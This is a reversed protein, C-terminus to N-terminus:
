RPKWPNRRRVLRFALKIAKIMSKSSALGRGAIDFATGHDPSTRVFPLGLTLNVGTEFSLMKLPALGQDHYMVVVAGFRNKLAQHFIVDGPIIGDIKLGRKRLRGIVPAIIKKEEGGLLGNDGAHPNLACVGITKRPLGLWKVALGAMEIAETLAARTLFKPILKVPVHRTALVVRLPGGMLMMAVNKVGALHALYETHGPFKCGAAQISKKCIPSTVLGDFAGALCGTVAARIWLLSAAGECKGTHGPRWRPDASSGHDCLGCRAACLNDPMKAGPDWVSVQNEDAEGINKCERPQPLKLKRAYERWLKGDGVLIFRIADPWKSRFVAKLAIEPGIGGPDGMTIALRIYKNRSFTM